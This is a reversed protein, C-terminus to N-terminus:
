VQEGCLSLLVSLSLLLVIFKGRDKGVSACRVGINGPIDDYAEGVREREMEM